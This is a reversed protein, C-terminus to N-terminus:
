CIDPDINICEGWPWSREPGYLAWLVPFEPEDPFTDCYGDTLYICIAPDIEHDESFIFGPRYDTGGGGKATLKVPLDEPYFEGGDHARTDVYVVHIITRYEQLISNLKANFYDVQNQNISGSTDMIMLVKPLERGRITPMYIDHYLHRRNPREYTYDGFLSKQVFDRLIDEIDRKKVLVDQITRDMGLPMKGAQKAAQEANTMTIKTDAELQSIEAESLSRGEENKPEIFEGTEWPEPNEGEAKDTAENEGEGGAGEDDKQEENSQPENGPTKQANESKGGKQPTGRGSPNKQEQEQKKLIHYVKEISMDAASLKEDYLGGEPLKMGARRIMGNIVYDGAQNALDHDMGKMRIPHLMLVHLVEHCLLGEVQEIPMANLVSPNFYIKRGDTAAVKFENSLEFRLDIAATGFFIQNVTLRARAQKAREVGSTQVM